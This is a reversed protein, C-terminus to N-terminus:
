TVFSQHRGKRAVPPPVALCLLTYRAPHKRKAKRADGWTKVQSSLLKAQENAM